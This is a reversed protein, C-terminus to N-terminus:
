AAGHDLGLRRLGEILKAAHLDWDGLTRGSRAAGISLARHTAPDMMQEMADALAEPTIAAAILADIGTMVQETIAGVPTAVVPLGAVFAASIVGSQSAERYPIVMADAGAMIDGIDTEAVWRTSLVVGRMGELGPALASADGEGVVLLRAEPRRAILLCFADRLLDLGKYARLRGFFLFRFEDAQHPVREVSPVFAGLPLRLLPLSPYSLHLGAEVHSSLTFAARAARLERRLRWNWLFGSDGLHPRADHVVPVFAIGARALGPAVLPTWTHTMVSVVADARWDRALRVLRATLLPVRSLGCAFGAVSRYTDIEQRPLRLSRFGDILECQRSISLCVSSDHRRALAGAMALAIQAGAGRRGWYWLLVRM